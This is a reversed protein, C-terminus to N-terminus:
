ALVDLMRADAISRPIIRASPFHDQLTAIEGKLLSGDDHICLAYRRGSASYFSKLTWILNLWDRSCTLAHIECCRDVTEPVPSTALIHLRVEDISFLTYDDADDM